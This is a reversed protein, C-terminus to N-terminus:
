LNDPNLEAARQLHFRAKDPDGLQHRMLEALYSHVGAQTGELELSERWHNAASSFHSRNYAILALANHAAAEPTIRNSLQYVQEASVIEHQLYLRNALDIYSSAMKRRDADEVFASKHVGDRLASLALDELGVTLYSSATAWPLLYLARSRDSYGRMFAELAQDEMDSKGWRNMAEALLLLVYLAEPNRQRIRSVVHEVRDMQNKRLAEVAGEFTKDVCGRGQFLKSQWAAFQEPFISAKRFISVTPHDYGTFSPDSRREGFGLGFLFPEQKFRQVPEFGLIGLTLDEYFSALAPYLDSAAQFQWSRNEQAIVLFDVKQLREELVRTAARCSLYGRTGFHFGTEILEHHYRTSSITSRVSFGGRELGITTGAPVNEDVWRGAAIRSDETSYITAFAAGYLSTYGIFVAIASFAFMRLGTSRLTRYFAVCFDAILLSAAPLMPLLYRVHKTHQGGITAFYLLLWTVCVTRSLSRRWLGHIIAPVLLAAMPWGAALPILSALYHIFPPTSIDFLSWPRLIGGGAVLASFGFDNSSEARMMLEPQVLLYPQLVILTALAALGACWLRPAAAQRLWSVLSREATGFACHAVILTPFLLLGNLRVAATLGVCIGSLVYLDYRYTRLTKIFCATSVVVLLTFVGDVTYYHALQIAIPFAALLATSLAAVASSFYARALLWMGILCLISLGASFFRVAMFLRPRIPSARLEGLDIDYAMSLAEVIGRALYIPLLGYSTTPPRLPTELQIAAHVLTEEDPHFEYFEEGVGPAAREPLLFDSRDRDIGNFRAAGGLTLAVVAVLSWYPKRNM